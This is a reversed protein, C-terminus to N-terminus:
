PVPIKPIGPVSWRSKKKQQPPQQQANNKSQASGNPNQNSAPQDASEFGSSQM